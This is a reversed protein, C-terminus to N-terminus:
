QVPLRDCEREPLESSESEKSIAVSKIFFRIVNVETQFFLYM